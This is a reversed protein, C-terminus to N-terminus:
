DNFNKKGGGKKQMKKKEASKKIIMAATIIIIIKNEYHLLSYFNPTNRISPFIRHTDKNYFHFPTSILSILLFNYIIPSLAIKYLLVFSTERLRKLLNASFSLPISFKNHLRNKKEIVPSIKRQSYNNRPFRSLKTSSKKKRLGSFKSTLRVNVILLGFLPM